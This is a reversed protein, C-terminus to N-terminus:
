LKRQTTTYMYYNYIIHYPPGIYVVLASYKGLHSTGLYIFVASTTSISPMSRGVM